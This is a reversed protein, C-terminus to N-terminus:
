VANSVSGASAPYELLDLLTKEPDSVQVPLQEIEVTQSGDLMAASPVVHFKITALARPVTKHRKTVFADIRSTHQQETLGHLTLAWLGGLYHPEGHLFVSVLVVSSSTTDHALSRFPRVLFRGRSLRELARKRV